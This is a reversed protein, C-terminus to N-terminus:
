RPARETATAAARRRDSRPQGPLRLTVRTGRPTLTALRLEGGHLRIVKDVLALGLGTGTARTTFFPDRARRLVVENMGEGEDVVLLSVGERDRAVEVKIRGGEPMARVANDVVNVLAQRLLSPDAYVVDCRATIEYTIPPEPDHARRVADVVDDLLPEIAVEEPRYPVPEAFHTLSRGLHDLRRTEERVIDVLTEIDISTTTPKRLSAAANRLVALPNRVEHAVVAALEGIAARSRTVGLAHEAARLDMLSRALLASSQELESEAEVVRRMLTAGIAITTVGVAHATLELAERGLVLSQLDLLGGVLATGLATAIFGLGRGRIAARALTVTMPAVALALVVGATIGTPTLQTRGDGGLPDVFAGSAALAAFAAGAWQAPWRAVPRQALASILEPLCMAAVGFAVLQWSRAAAELPASQAADLASTALLGCANTVAYAAFVRLLHEDPRLRALLAFWLAM